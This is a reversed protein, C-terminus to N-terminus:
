TREQTLTVSMRLAATLWGHKTLPSSADVDAGVIRADHLVGWTPQTVTGAQVTLCWPDIKSRLYNLLAERRALPYAPGSKAKWREIGYIELTYQQALTNPIEAVLGPLTGAVTPLALPICVLRAGDAASKFQEQLPSAGTQDGERWTAILRDSGIIFLQCIIDTLETFRSREYDSM